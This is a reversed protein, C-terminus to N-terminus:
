APLFLHKYKEIIDLSTASRLNNNKVKSYVLSLGLMRSITPFYNITHIDFGIDLLAAACFGGINLPLDNTKSFKLCKEIYPTNYKLQKIKYILSEIRPDNKKYIPHGFGPYYKDSTKFDNLIFEAIKTFPFHANGFCNIASAISQPYDRESAATLFCIMSSNPILSNPEFDYLEILLLNLIKKQKNSIKKNLLKSYAFELFDVSSKSKM